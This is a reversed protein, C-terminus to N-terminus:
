LIVSRKIWYNLPKCLYCSLAVCCSLLTKFSNMYKTVIILHSDYYRLLYIVRHMAWYDAHVRVEVWRAPSAQVPTPPPELLYGFYMIFFTKEKSINDSLFFITNFYIIERQTSDTDYQEWCKNTTTDCSELINNSSNYFFCLDVIIM